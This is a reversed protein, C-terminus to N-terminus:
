KRNLWLEARLHVLNRVSFQGQILALSRGFDERVKTQVEILSPRSVFEFQEM